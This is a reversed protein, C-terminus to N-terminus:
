LHECKDTKKPIVLMAMGLAHLGQAALGATVRESGRAMGRQVAQFSGRTVPRQPASPGRSM